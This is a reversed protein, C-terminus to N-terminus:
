FSSMVQTILEDVRADMMCGALWTLSKSIIDLELHLSAYSSRAVVSCMERTLSFPSLGHRRLFSPFNTWFCPTRVHLMYGSDLWSNRVSSNVM